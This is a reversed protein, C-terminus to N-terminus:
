LAEGDVPKRAWIAASMDRPTICAPIDPRAIPEAKFGVERALVLLSETDYGYRHGHPGMGLISDLFKDALSPGVWVAKGISYRRNYFEEDRALYRAAMISLDPVGILARCGPVLVRLIEHLMILADGRTLHELVHSCLAYDVVNDEFPLGDKVVDRQIYRDPHQTVTKIPWVDIGIFGDQGTGRGGCGVDIKLEEVTDAVM